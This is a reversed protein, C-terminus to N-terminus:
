GVDNNANLGACLSSIVNSEPSTLPIELIGTGRTCMTRFPIARSLLGLRGYRIQHQLKWLLDRECLIRRFTARVALSCLRCNIRM